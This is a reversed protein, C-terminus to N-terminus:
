ISLVYHFIFWYHCITGLLIFFISINHYSYKRNEEKKEEKPIELFSFIASITYSVNGILLWVLSPLIGYFSFVQLMPFIAIWIVWGMAFYIGLSLWTPVKKWFLSIFLGVLALFWVVGFISWGWGGRLPGLCIPTYTGAIIIYISILELLHFFLPPRSNFRFLYCLTSVLFLLILTAGYISSSAIDWPPAGSHVSYVVLCISSVIAIILCIFNLTLSFISRSKKM